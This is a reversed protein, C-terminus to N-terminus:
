LGSGDELRVRFKALRSRVWPDNWLGILDQGCMHFFRGPDNKDDWDPVVLISATESEMSPRGDVSRRANNNPSSRGSGNGTRGSVARRIKNMIAGNKGKNWSSDPRVFFEKDTGELVGSLGSSGQIRTKAHVASLQTNREEPGVLKNIITEELSTVPSLRLKMEAVYSSASKASKPRGGNSNNAGGSPGGGLTALSPLTPSLPVERPLKLQSQQASNRSKSPSYYPSSPDEDEDNDPDRELSHELVKLIRQVSRVVNLFVVLRWAAREADFTEPAHM